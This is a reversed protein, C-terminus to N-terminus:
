PDLLLGSNTILSPRDNPTEAVYRIVDKLNIDVEEQTLWTAPIDEKDVAIKRVVAAAAFSRQVNEKLNKSTEFMWPSSKQKGTSGKLLIDTINTKM